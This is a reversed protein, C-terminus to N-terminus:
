THFFVMWYNMQFHHIMLAFHNSSSLLTVNQRIFSTAGTYFHIIIIHDNTYTSYFKYVPKPIIYAKRGGMLIIAHIFRTRKTGNLIANHPAKLMDILLILIGPQVVCSSM